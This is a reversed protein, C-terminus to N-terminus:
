SFDRPAQGLLLNIDRLDANSSAPITNIVNGESDYEVVDPMLRWAQAHLAGVRTGNERWVGIVIIDNPYDETLENIARQAAQADDGDIYISYLTYRKGAITPSKYLAEVREDAIRSLIRYARTPMPGNYAEGADEAQRRNRFATRATSSVALWLNHYPNRSM